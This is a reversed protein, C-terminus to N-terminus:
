GDVIDGVLYNRLVENDLADIDWGEERFSAKILEPESWLGVEGGGIQFTRGNVAAMSDTCLWAVLAAVEEAKAPRPTAMGRNGLVHKGFTQVLKEGAAVGGGEGGALRTNLARPRIANCRVGFRGLDRAVTRTFGIIGEKAASYNAQGFHGLGSESGTNVIVGSRQERFIPAAHRVMNFCGKLHVAIVADWDEESLNYIVRPRANGANNVLIDLRGFSKVATDVIRAAGAYSAVSDGNAVATGGFAQIEQVVQQAVGVDAGEGKTDGGLDNVVVKAGQRALELAEARGIGNGAGTVIAAKGALRKKSDAM